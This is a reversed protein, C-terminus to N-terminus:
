RREVPDAVWSPHLPERLALLALRYAIPRVPPRLGVLAYFRQELADNYHRDAEGM